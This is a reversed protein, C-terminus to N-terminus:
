NYAQGVKAFTSSRHEPRPLLLQMMKLGYIESEAFSRKAVEPNRGENLNGILNPAVNILIGIVVATCLVAAKSMGNLQGTKVWSLVGAFAIVIMGFLAYYVGFSALVVLGLTAVLVKGLNVRRSQTPGLKRTRYVSLALYFFLPAVFYWTYFLHQLRLFHFPTFTYLLGAAMAFSRNLGFARSTVYTAIFCVPFGLLFFLNVAAVWGGGVIALLKIILHSGGDSGPFDLFSSGFPYGSRANDFVWGEDVRQAMWAHFLSDGSYSFPTSLDPILGAPTGSMLISALLFSFVAGVLMLGWDSALISRLNPTTAHGAVAPHILNQSNV